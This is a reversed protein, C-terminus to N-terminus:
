AEEQENPYPMPSAPGWGPRMPKNKGTNITQGETPLALGGRHYMARVVSKRPHHTDALASSIYGYFTPTAPQHNLRPGLLKDLLATSVNRRSGHHPVQFRDIGPLQLGVAPAFDVVEQLGGRGTDGTLLINEGCLKAYQVVSMENEASTEQTSFTEEGWAAKVLNVIKAAAQVIVKELLGFAGDDAKVANPTKESDVVLDLYRPKTPAMVTFAGIAAGQFPAKIPIGKDAALDELAALNPYAERLRKKLNDVNTYKEFRDILVDAYEWPRLMWLTGIKFSELIVQLGRAHDGDNHTVVVNDIFAPNDFYDNIHEVMTEGTSAYGGDVVHIFTESDVTYRICIADGSKATEVALFDLEYSDTM